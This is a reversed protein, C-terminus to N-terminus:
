KACCSDDIEIEQLNVKGTAIEKTKSRRDFAYELMELIVDNVNTGTKASVERFGVVNAVCGDELRSYDCREDGDCKNAIFMIDAVYDYKKLETQAKKYWFEASEISSADNVDFVILVAHTGRFYLPAINSYKEQGGLDWMQLNIRANRSGLDIMKSMFDAGITARYSQEFKRHIFRNIISTKGAAAAGVVVLKIGM